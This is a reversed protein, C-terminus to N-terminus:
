KSIETDAGGMMGALSLPGAQDFVLV